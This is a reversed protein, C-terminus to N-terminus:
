EVERLKVSTWPYILNAVELEPDHCLATFIKEDKKTIVDFCSFQGAKLVAAKINEYNRQKGRLDSVADIRCLFVEHTNDPNTVLQELKDNDENLLKVSKELDAIRKEAILARQKWKETLPYESM